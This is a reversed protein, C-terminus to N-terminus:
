GHGAAEVDAALQQKDHYAKAEAWKEHRVDVQREIMEGVESAFHARFWDATFANPAALRLTVGDDSVPILRRFWSHWEADGFREM